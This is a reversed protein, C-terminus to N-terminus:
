KMEADPQQADANEQPVQEKASEDIMPEDEQKPAETKAPEAKTTVNILPECEASLTQIKRYCEEITCGSDNFLPQSELTNKLKNLFEEVVGVKDFVIKRQDDTM